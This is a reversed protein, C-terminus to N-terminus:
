GGGRGDLVSDPGDDGEAVPLRRGGTMM